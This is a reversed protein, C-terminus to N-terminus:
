LDDLEELNDPHDLLEEDNKIKKPIKRASKLGTTLTTIVIAKMIIGQFLTSIDVIAMLVILGIYIFLAIIIAQATNERAHWWLGFFALGIGGDVYLGLMFHEPGFAEYLGIVIQLICVFLLANKAYLVNKTEEKQRRADMVKKAAIMSKAVEEPSRRNGYNRVSM